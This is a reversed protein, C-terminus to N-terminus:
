KGLARAAEMAAGSGSANDNASPQPHCIHGVVVVEEDTEGPISFVANEISGDYVESDVQAFLRVAERKKRKDEVLGRLWRGTRPTLVFGFCPKEDGAWWFSTYRLADDLEGEVLAPPRVWTGDFVIGVAGREEVALERVRGLDGRTLVIKGEVDLGKYDGEEEGSDLVVVEAEVGNPPTPFSRQIVSLKAESWRALFRAEGEPEVLRLEADRCVWERFRLSSWSYSEGDAPYEDVEADLGFGGMTEVAYRVADRMGPSAQIRHHRSIESVFGFSIKGSVEVELENFVRKFM